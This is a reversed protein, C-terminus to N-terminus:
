FQYVVNLGVTLNNKLSNEAANSVGTGGSGYEGFGSLDSDHRVEARTIVNEWLKYDLTVTNSLLKVQEGEERQTGFAGETGSGYDARYNVTLKESVAYSVYGAIASEWTSRLVSREGNFRYDWSAGVSLGDVPTPVTLGVYLSQTNAFEASGGNNVYGVYLNSGEFAGLSEPATISVAAMYTKQSEIETTGRDDVDHIVAGNVIGDEFNGTNAIGAKVSIIDNVSYSALLGTHVTPELSWGFSRSYNPNSPNNNYEYGIISDFVGMKLDIGNGVPVRLDVTAQKIAIHDDTAVSGLTLADPGIWLESTFGAAWEGEDIPKSINLSIVDLNIGDHGIADHFSKGPQGGNAGSGPSWIASTSVYGSITTGSVATMLSEDAASAASAMGVVGLAALTKTWNNLKV